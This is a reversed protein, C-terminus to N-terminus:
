IIQKQRLLMANTASTFIPMHTHRKYTDHFKSFPKYIKVYLVPIHNTLVPSPAVAGEGTRRPGPGGPDESRPRVLKRGLGLGLCPSTQRPLSLPRPRLTGQTHPRTQDPRPYPPNPHSAISLLAICHLVNCHLAIPHYLIFCCVSAM